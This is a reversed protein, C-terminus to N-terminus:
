IVVAEVPHGVLRGEGLGVFGVAPGVGEGDSKRGMEEPVEDATAKGKVCLICVYVTGAPM